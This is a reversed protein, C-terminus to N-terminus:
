LLQHVGLELVVTLVTAYGLVSAFTSSLLLRGDVGLAKMTAAVIWVGIWPTAIVLFWVGYRDLTEKLRPRVCRDLVAGIAPRARLREYAIHVLVIPLYNGLVSWCVVSVPDLQLALGAPVAIYIEALPFFGVFWVSFSKALYEM